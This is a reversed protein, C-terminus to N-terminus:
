RTWVFSLGNYHGIQKWGIPYVDFSNPIISINKRGYEKTMKGILLCLQRRENFEKKIIRFTLTNKDTYPIKDNYLVKIISWIPPKYQDMTNFTQYDEKKLLEIQEPTLKSELMYINIRM